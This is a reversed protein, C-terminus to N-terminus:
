WDAYIQREAIVDKVTQLIAEPVVQAAKVVIQALSLLQSTTLTVKTDAPAVSSKQKKKAQKVQKAADRAARLSPVINSVDQCGRAANALWNVLRTTGDKYQKYHNVLTADAM